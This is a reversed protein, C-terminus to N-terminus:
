DSTFVMVHRDEHSRYYGSVTEYIEFGLKKYVRIASANKPDVTLLVQTAADELVHRMLKTGIGRGRVSPHVMVKHLFSSGTSTPFRVAAGVIDGCQGKTCAETRAISLSAYECWLRWVHEGDPIFVNPEDPWAIRDLAAVKLYDGAQAQEIRIDDTM